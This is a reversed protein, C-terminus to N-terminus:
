ESTNALLYILINDEDKGCPRWHRKEMNPSLHFMCSRRITRATCSREPMTHQKINARPIEIGLHSLGGKFASTAGGGQVPLYQLNPSHHHELKRKLM